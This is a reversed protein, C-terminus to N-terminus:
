SPYLLRLRIFYSQKYNLFESGSSNANASVLRLVVRSFHSSDNSSVYPSKESVILRGRDRIHIMSLSEMLLPHHQYHVRASNPYVFVLRNVIFRMAIDADIHIPSHDLFRAVDIIITIYVSDIIHLHSPHHAECSHINVSVCVLRGAILRLAIGAVIHTPSRNVCVDADIIM